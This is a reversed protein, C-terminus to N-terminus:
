PEDIRFAAFGNQAADIEATIAFHGVGIAAGVMRCIEGIMASHGKDTPWERHFFGVFMERPKGRPSKVTQPQQGGPFSDLMSARAIIVRGIKVIICLEATPCPFITEIDKYVKMLINPAAHGPAITRRGPDELLDPEVECFEMLCTSGMDHLVFIVIGATATLFVIVGGHGPRLVITQRGVANHPRQEERAAVERGIHDNITLIHLVIQLVMIRATQYLNRFPNLIQGIHDAKVCQIFRACAKNALTQGVLM